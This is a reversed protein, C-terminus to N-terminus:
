YICLSPSKGLSAARGEAPALNDFERALDRIRNRELGANCALV